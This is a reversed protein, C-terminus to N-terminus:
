YIEYNNEQSIIVEEGGYNKFYDHDTGIFIDGYSGYLYVVDKIPIKEIKNLQTKNWKFELNMLYNQAIVCELENRVKIKIRKM